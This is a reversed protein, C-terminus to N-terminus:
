ATSQMLCSWSFLCYLLRCKWWVHNVVGTFIPPPPLTIVKHLQKYVVLMKLLKRKNDEYFIQKGKHGIRNVSISQRIAFCNSTFHACLVLHGFAGVFATLVSGFQVSKLKVCWLTANNWWRLNGVSEYHNYKCMWNTGAIVFYTKEEGIQLVGIKYLSM